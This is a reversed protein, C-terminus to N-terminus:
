DGTIARLCRPFAPPVVPLGGLACAVRDLSLSIRQFTEIVPASLHDYFAVRQSTSPRFLLRRLLVLSFSRM